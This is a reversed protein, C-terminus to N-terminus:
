KKKPRGPGKKYKDPMADWIRDISTDPLKDIRCVEDTLQGRTLVQGGELKACYLGMQFAIKLSADWNKKEGRLQGLERAEEPALSSIREKHAEAFERDAEFEEIDVPRFVLDTMHNSDFQNLEGAPVEHFEGKEMRFAPLGKYILAALETTYIGWREM